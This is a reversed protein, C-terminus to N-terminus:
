GTRSRRVTEALHRWDAATINSSARVALGAGLLLTPVTVWSGYHATLILSVFASAAFCAFALLRRTRLTGIKDWGLAFGAGIL